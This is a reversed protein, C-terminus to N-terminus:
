PRLQNPAAFVPRAMTRQLHDRVRRYLDDERLRQPPIVSAEDIDRTAAWEAVARRLDPDALIFDVAQNQTGLTPAGNEETLEDYLRIVYVLAERRLKPDEVPLAM